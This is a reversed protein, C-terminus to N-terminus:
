VGPQSLVTSDADSMLDSAKQRDPGQATSTLIRGRSMEPGELARPGM